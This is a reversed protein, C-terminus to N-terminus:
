SAQLRDTCRLKRRKASALSLVYDHTDEKGERTATAMVLWEDRDGASGLHGTM